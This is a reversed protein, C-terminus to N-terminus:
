GAPAYTATGALLCAFGRTAAVASEAMFDVTVVGGDGAYYTLAGAVDDDAGPLADFADGPRFDDDESYATGTNDAGTTAVRVFGNSATAATVALVGSGTCRTTLKLGGLDLATTTETSVPRAYAIRQVRVGNNLSEAREAVAARAANDANDARRASGVSELTREDIDSGDLGDEIVDRGSLNAVVRGTVSNSKLDTGTLSRNRIDATTLSNDRVDRSGILKAAVAPGGWAGAVAIAALALAPSPRRM